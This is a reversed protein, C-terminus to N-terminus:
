SLRRSRPKRRRVRGEIVSSCNPYVHRVVASPIVVDVVLTLHQAPYRSMRGVNEVHAAADPHQRPLQGRQRLPHDPDIGM